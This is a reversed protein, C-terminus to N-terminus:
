AKPPPVLIERYPSIITASFSAYDLKLFCSVGPLLENRSAEYDATTIKAFSKSSNNNKHNAHRVYKALNDLVKKEEHDRLCYLLVRGDVEKTRIVDYMEGNLQFEKGYEKWYLRNRYNEEIIIELQGDPLSALLERQRESRAEYQHYIYLFYYATQSTFIVLLFSVAVIRKLLM